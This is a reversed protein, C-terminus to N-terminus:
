LQARRAYGIADALEGTDRLRQLQALVHGDDDFPRAGLDGAAGLVHVAGLAALLLAAALWPGISLQPLEHWRAIIMATHAGAFTCLITLQVPLTFVGFALAVGAVAILG